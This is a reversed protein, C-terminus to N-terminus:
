RSQNRHNDFLKCWDMMGPWMGINLDFVFLAKLMSYGTRLFAMFACIALDSFRGKKNSAKM